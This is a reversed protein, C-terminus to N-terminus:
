RRGGFASGQTRLEPEDGSRTSSFRPGGYLALARIDAEKFGPKLGNLVEPELAGGAVVVGGPIPVPEYNVM